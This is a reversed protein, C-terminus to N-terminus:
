FRATRQSQVVTRGNSTVHRQRTGHSGIIPGRALSAVLVVTAAGLLIVGILHLGFESSHDQVTWTLIAVAGMLLIRLAGM